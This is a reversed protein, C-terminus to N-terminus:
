DEWQAELEEVIFGEGMLAMALYLPLAGEERYVSEALELLRDHLM